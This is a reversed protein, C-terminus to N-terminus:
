GQHDQVDEQVNSQLISERSLTEAKGLAVKEVTTRNLKVQMFFEQLQGNGTKSLEM